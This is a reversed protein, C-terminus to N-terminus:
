LILIGTCSMIANALVIEGGRKAETPIKDFFEVSPKKADELTVLASAIKTGGIDIAVVKQAGM